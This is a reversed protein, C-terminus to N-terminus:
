NGGDLTNTKPAPDSNEPQGRSLLILLAAILASWDRFYRTEGSAVDRVQGRWETPQTEMNDAWLRLTFLYSRGYRNDVMRTVGESALM